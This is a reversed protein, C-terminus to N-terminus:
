KYIYIYMYYKAYHLIIYLLFLDMMKQKFQQLHNPPEHIVPSPGKTFANALRNFVSISWVMRGGGERERDREEKEGFYKPGVISVGKIDEQVGFFLSIDLFGGGGM